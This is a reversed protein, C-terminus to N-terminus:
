ASMQEVHTSESTSKEAKIAEDLQDRQETTINTLRVVVNDGFKEGVEELALGKTEPFFAWIIPINIATLIIFLLYYKWGVQAFATPAPILYAVTTAFLIALSWAM